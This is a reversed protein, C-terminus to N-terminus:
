RWGWWAGGGGTSVGGGQGGWGRPWRQTGRAAVATSRCWPVQWLGGWGVTQRARYGTVGRRWQCARPAAGSSGAAASKHGPILRPGGQQYRNRSRDGSLGDPRGLCNIVPISILNEWIVWSKEYWRSISYMSTPCSM